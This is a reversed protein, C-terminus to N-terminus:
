FIIVTFRKKLSIKLGLYKPLVLVFLLKLLVKSCDQRLNKSFVKLFLRNKRNFRVLLSLSLSLSLSLCLSLSVSLCLSLSLALSRSLYISLYISFKNNKIESLFEIAPVRSNFSLSQRHNIRHPKGKSPLIINRNTGHYYSLYQPM